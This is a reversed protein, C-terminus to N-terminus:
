RRRKGLLVTDRLAEVDRASLWRKEFLPDQVIQAIAALARLHFNREDRTGALVFITHVSPANESFWVGERCRALLIDFAHEGDIIIHPIALNPTLVTTSEKERDQLMQFLIAPLMQLSPALHQSATHFFEDIKLPGEIDLVISKEIIRDFRDKTIDDRERIIDKLETELSHTALEKATVRQILHLLAYERTTRIRGYFWYAFLGCLVLMISILLAEKGMEFLIFVFFLIGTIQVWPYLPGRFSPQYNQLRSERLIIVSLNSFIFTLILVTSAAEVLIKIKLFLSIIIFTGTIIIAVHPTQFRENIKGFSEPLLGDRSLALPYRSAAM